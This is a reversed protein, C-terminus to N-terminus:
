VDDREVKIVSDPCIVACMGCAVCKEINICKVPNYGKENILEMDLELIKQPCANVCLLCGKCSKEDFTLISKPM